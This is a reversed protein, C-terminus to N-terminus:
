HSVSMAVGRQFMLDQFKPAFLRRASLRRRHRSSGKSSVDSIGTASEAIVACASCLRRCVEEVDDSEPVHIM